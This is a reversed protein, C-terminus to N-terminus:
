NHPELNVSVSGSFPRNLDDLIIYQFLIKNSLSDFPFYVRSSLPRNPKLFCKRIENRTKLVLQLYTVNNM